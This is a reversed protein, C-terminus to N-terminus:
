DVSPRRRRRVALALLALSLASTGPLASCGGTVVGLGDPAQANAIEVTVAESRAVNGAADKAVAELTRAGNELARTDISTEWPAQTAAAVVVGDVEFSVETVGVDDLATAAVAATGSWSVTGSPTALAVRPPSADVPPRPNAVVRVSAAGVRGGAGAVVAYPGGLSAGATYQGAASLRGAGVLSWEFPGPAPLANKFQDAAAATFQQVGAPKLELEAPSVLIYTFSAEVTVDVPSTGVNGQADRLTAQLAYAGAKTFRATTRKAANSGNASFAVPAPGSVSEWTYTLATEGGDDAGLVTLEATATTVPSASVAAPQAAVPSTGGGAVTVTMTTTAAHDGSSGGNGNVSNGAGYLRVPGPYAPARLQFQFTASGGSYARPSSHHVEASFATTQGTVGLLAADTSGVAVNMGARTGPGGSVTLTYTGTAGPTLSAPGALTVTPAAGTAAHCASCSTGQLGSYGVVGLQNAFVPSSM